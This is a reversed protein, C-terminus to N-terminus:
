GLTFDAFDGAADLQAHGTAVFPTYDLGQVVLPEVDWRVNHLTAGFEAAGNDLALGYADAAGNARAATLLAWAEDGVRGTLQVQVRAHGAKHVRARGASMDWRAAADEAARLTLRGFPVDVPTGAPDRVLTAARGPFEAQDAPEMPFTPLAWGALADGPRVESVEAAYRARLTVRGASEVDLAVEPFWADALRAVKRATAAFRDEVFALSWRESVTTAHTFAGLALPGWCGRWAAGVTAPTARLWLEGALPRPVPYAGDAAPGGGASMFVPDAQTPGLDVPARPARAAVAAAFNTVPTGYAAQAALLARTARGARANTVVM